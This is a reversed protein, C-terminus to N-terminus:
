YIFMSPQAAWGKTLQAGSSPRFQYRLLLRKDDPSIGLICRIPFSLLDILRGVGPVVHFNPCSMNLPLECHFLSLMPYCPIDISVM